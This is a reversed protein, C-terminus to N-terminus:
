LQNDWIRKDLNHILERALQNIQEERFSQSTSQDELNMHLHSREVIKKATLYAQDKVTQQLSKKPILVIKLDCELAKAVKKLTSLNLSGQIEAKEINAIAQKTLDLHQALQTAQMGLSKRITQIWGNRPPFINENREVELRQDLQNRLLFITNAQKKNM